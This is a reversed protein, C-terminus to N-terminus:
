DERIETIKILGEVNYIGNNKGRGITFKDDGSERKVNLHFYKPKNNKNNYIGSEYFSDVRGEDNSLDFNVDDVVTRSGINKRSVNIKRVFHDKNFKPKKSHVGIGSVFDFSPFTKKSVGVGIVSKHDILKLRRIAIRKGGKSETYHNKDESATIEYEFFDKGFGNIEYYSSIEILIKSNNLKPQYEIRLIRTKNDNYNTAKTSDNITEVQSLTYTKMNVIKNMVNDNSENLEYYKNSVYGKFKSNDLINNINEDSKSFEKLMNSTSDSVYGKFKSNDLINDLIENSKSFESIKSATSDSIYGKFKSNDLINDLIEDSKSAEFIKQNVFHNINRRFVNNGFINNANEGSKSFESIKSATSDSIYEKFKSNGLINDINQDMKSFQFMKHNVFNNIGNQFMSNNLINNVIDQSSLPTQAPTTQAPPTQAPPTQTPPTQAPPTQAPPTQAPPTQTPPTQAPPTQAPQVQEQIAKNITAKNFIVSGILEGHTGTHNPNNNYYYQWKNSTIKSSQTQLIVGFDPHKLFWWPDNPINNAKSIVFGNRNKFNIRSDFNKYDTIEISDLTADPNNNLYANTLYPEYLGQIEEKINSNIKNNVPLTMLFGTIKKTQLSTEDLGEIVRPNSYSNTFGEIYKQKNYFGQVDYINM